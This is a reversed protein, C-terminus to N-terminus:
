NALLSLFIDQCFVLLTIVM